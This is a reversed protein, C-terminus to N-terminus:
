PTYAAVLAAISVIVAIRDFSNRPREIVTLATAGPGVAVSKNRIPFDGSSISRKALIFGSSRRPVGVSMADTTAKRTPGSPEHILPWTSRALPPMTQISRRNDPTVRQAGGIGEVM